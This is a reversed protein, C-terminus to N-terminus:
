RLYRNRSKSRYNGEKSKINTKLPFKSPTESEKEDDIMYDNMGGIKFESEEEKNFVNSVLDHHPQRM